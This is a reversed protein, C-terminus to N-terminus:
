SRGRPRRDALRIVNGRDREYADLEQAEGAVTVAVRAGIAERLKQLGDADVTVALTQRDPFPWPARGVDHLADLAGELQEVVVHELPKRQVHGAVAKIIRGLLVLDYRREPEDQYRFRTGIAEAEARLEVYSRPRTTALHRARARALGEKTKPASM